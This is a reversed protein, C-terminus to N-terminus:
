WNRAGKPTYVQHSGTREHLFRKARSALDGRLQMNKRRFTAVARTADTLLRLAQMEVSGARAM